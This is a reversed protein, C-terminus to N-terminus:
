LTARGKKETTGDTKVKFLTVAMPKDTKKDVEVCYANDKCWAGSNAYIRDKVLFFDKDLVAKHTHGFIVVSVDAKKCLKDAHMGLASRDWLEKIFERTSYLDSLRAYRNKAQKITLEKGGPMKISDNDGMGAREALGEIMTEFKNQKTGVAEVIDDIYTPLDIIGYGTTDFSTVLRSIIYGIPRGFAPDCYYDPKNFIDDFMHGHEAHLLGSHYISKPQIGPIANEVQNSTLDYDHNGNIYFLLIGDAIIEKFKNCITANSEFIEEYTPPIMDAPCVWTNFIDGLLVVEKIDTKGLINKDIFQILRTEHLPIKFWSSHHDYLENSSLHMDSIFIRKTRAM